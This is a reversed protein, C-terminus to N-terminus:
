YLEKSMYLKWDLYYVGQVGYDYLQYKISDLDCAYQTDQLQDYVGTIERILQQYLYQHDPHDALLNREVFGVCAGLFALSIWEQLQENEIHDLTPSLQKWWEHVARIESSSKVLETNKKKQVEDITHAQQVASVLAHARSPKPMM